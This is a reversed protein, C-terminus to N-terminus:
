DICWHEDAVYGLHLEGKAVWRLWMWRGAADGFRRRAFMMLAQSEAVSLLAYLRNSLDLGCRGQYVCVRAGASSNGLFFGILRNHSVTVKPGVRWFLMRQGRLALGGKDGLLTSRGSAAIM